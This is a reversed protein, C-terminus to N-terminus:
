ENLDPLGLIMPAWEGAYPLARITNYEVWEVAASEKEEPTEGEMDEAFAGVLLDYDYVAVKGGKANLFAAVIAKDLLERPELLLAKKDLQSLIASM